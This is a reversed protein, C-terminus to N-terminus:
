PSRYGMPDAIFEDIDSEYWAVARVGIPVRRPFRGALERRYISSVSMGTRATVVPKRLLRDTRRDKKLSAEEGSGNCRMPSNDQKDSKM